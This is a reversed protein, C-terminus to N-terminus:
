RGRTARRGRRGRRGPSGRGGATEEPEEEKDAKENVRAGGVHVEVWEHRLTLEVVGPAYPAPQGLTRTLAASLLVVVPRVVTAPM